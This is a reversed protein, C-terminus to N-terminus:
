LRCCVLTLLQSQPIKFLRCPLLPLPPPPPAPPPPLVGHGERKVDQLEEQTLNRYFSDQSLM